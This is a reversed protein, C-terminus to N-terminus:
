RIYGKRAAAATAFYFSSSPLWELVAAVIFATSTAASVFYTPASQFVMGVATPGLAVVSVITLLAGIVGFAAFVTHVIRVWNRGSRVGLAILLLIAAGILSGTWIWPEVFGQMQEAFGPPLSTRQQVSLQLLEAGVVRKAVDIQYPVLFLPLVASAVLCWFAANVTAPRELPRPAPLGPFSGTPLQSPWPGPHPSQTM